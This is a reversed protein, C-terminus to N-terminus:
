RRKRAKRWERGTSEHITLEGGGSRVVIERSRQIAEDESEFRGSARVGSPRVLTWGGRAQNRMVHWGDDM